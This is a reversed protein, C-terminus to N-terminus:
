LHGCGPFPTEKWSLMFHVSGPAPIPVGCSHRFESLLVMHRVLIVSLSSFTGFFRGMLSFVLNTVELRSPFMEYRHLKGKWHVAHLPDHPAAVPPVLDPAVIDAAPSVVSDLHAVAVCPCILNM